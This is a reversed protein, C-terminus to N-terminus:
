ATCDDMSILMYGNGRKSMIDLNYKNVFSKILAIDSKITRSSVFFHKAYDEASVFYNNEMLMNLLQLQRQNLNM